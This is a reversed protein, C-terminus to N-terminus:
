GASGPGAPRPTAHARTHHELKGGGDCLKSSHLCGGYKHQDNWEEVLLTPSFKYWKRKCM